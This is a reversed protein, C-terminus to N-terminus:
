AFNNKPINAIIKPYLDKIKNDMIIVDGDKIENKLLTASNDIFNVEYDHVNSKVIFDLVLLAAM